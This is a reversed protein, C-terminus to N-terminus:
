KGADASAELRGDPWGEYIQDRIMAPSCRRYVVTTGESGPEAEAIWLGSPTDAWATLSGDLTRGDARPVFVEVSWALSSDSMLPTLRRVADDSLGSDRMLSDADSGSSRVQQQIVRQIDDASLEFEDPEVAEAHPLALAEDVADRMRTFDFISLRLNGHPTLRVGSCWLGASLFTVSRIAETSVSSIRVFVEPRAIVRCLTALSEPIVDEGTNTRQTLGRAALSRRGIAEVESRVEPQWSSVPSGALFAPLPLGLGATLALLEEITFDSQDVARGEPDRWRLGCQLRLM